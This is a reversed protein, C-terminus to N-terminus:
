EASEGDARFAVANGQSCSKLCNSVRFTLTMEHGDPRRHSGLDSGGALPDSSTGISPAISGSYFATFMLLANQMFLCIYVTASAGVDWVGQWHAVFFGSVLEILM